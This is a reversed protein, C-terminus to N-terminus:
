NNSLNIEHCFYHEYPKIMSEYDLTAKTTVEIDDLPVTINMPFFSPCLDVQKKDSGPTFGIVKYVTDIVVTGHEDILAKNLRERRFFAHKGILDKDSLENANLAESENMNKIM